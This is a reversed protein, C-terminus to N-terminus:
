DRLRVYELLGTQEKLVRLNKRQCAAVAVIICAALVVKLAIGPAYRLVATLLVGFLVLEGPRLLAFTKLKQKM